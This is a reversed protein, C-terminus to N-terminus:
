QIFSKLWRLDKGTRKEINEILFVDAKNLSRTLVISGTQVLIFFIGIVVLGLFQLSVDSLLVRIGVAVVGTVILPKFNDLSFPTIKTYHYIACVEIINYAAYGMVTGFAAGTIGFGRILYLNLVFNVFVGIGGAFLEIKPRHIAKVIDGNLGVLARIYLGSILITMASAAPLYQEGFLVIILDKSFLSLVLVFPFTIAAIWKTSVTYLEELESILNSSYKETALPLFIFTFSVLTFETIQRLPQIARYFGVQQSELFFGIMLIDLRAMLLFIVSSIALPWSFNFLKIIRDFSPYKSFGLQFNLSKHTVFTTGIFIFLPFSVWYLAPLLITKIGFTLALILVSVSALRPGLYRSALAGISRKQSRLAAFSVMAVPYILLYPIFLPILDVLREDNLFAAIYSRTGFVTLAMAITITAIIWYGSILFGRRTATDDNASMLRTVGAPVGFLSLQSVVVIITYALALHGYTKPNLSRVILIEGFLGLARASSTAIFIIAASKMLDSFSEKISSM